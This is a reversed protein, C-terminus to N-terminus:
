KKQLLYFYNANEVLLKEYLDTIFEIADDCDQGFDDASILSCDVYDRFTCCSHAIEGNVHYRPWKSWSGISEDLRTRDSM